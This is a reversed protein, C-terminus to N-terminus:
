FTDAIIITPWCLCSSSFGGPWNPQKSVIMESLFFIIFCFFRSFVFPLRSFFTAFSSKTTIEKPKGKKVQKYEFLAMERARVVWGSTCINTHISAM